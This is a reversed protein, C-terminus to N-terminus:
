GRADGAVAGGGPDPPRQHRQNWVIFRGGPASAREAGLAPGRGAAGGRGRELGRAPEARRPAADEAAGRPADGAGDQDRRRRRGGGAHTGPQVQDRGAEAVGGRGPGARLHRAPGAGRDPRGPHHRDRAGRGRRGRGAGARRQGAGPPDGAGALAREAGDAREVSRGPQDGLRARGGAGRPRQATRRLAAGPRVLGVGESFGTGDAAGAFPKCRGDPALGRQRSFEVFLRPEALVTVGGALALDCEGSRLAQGALHMAILSSSCATDVTVAPGELGLAYAVRGSVVSGGSITGEGTGPSAGAGLGYEHFMVGAFVGTASGGLSAPDVGADELAEWAAELLLRQQPDTVRAERPSIGFFEADFEGADDLFGGESAYSTGSHAPDSDFLRELDWGRDEPFSSIADAGGDLLRWLDEPSEVGGPYRCSMGVIAIPEESGAAARVIVPASDQGAALGRLFAAAAATSPYDFVLTSPLRLGTAAGLRNRLEVAGLSDFGLEKFSADPDIAAAAAHGLVAAVHEAVLAVVLGEREAEPAAALLQALSGAAARPRGAAVRVLGSYLPALQGSRARARLAALDLPAAVAFGLGRAREFLEVGEADAIARGGGRAMRAREAEGLEGGMGSTASWAGWAISTAPLGGARRRQALADLFANAAAYNGQGPGGFSAAISSFLTFESLEADGTLEHLNWAAQAKPAMVAALREPTLSEVVGDDLVGAAHVVAGLPHETSISDLLAALAARDAVDCAAIRVEAGLQELEAALEPAGPAESGRRSTLLLHRAGREALHRAFLAGLAGTAGTILVTREPDLAAPETPRAEIRALRPALAAGERLALQPEAETALAAALAGASADSGDTDILLFRGPHEAQASRVLGWVAAAAPDPSEGEGVAVAGRTLFALRSEDAAAIPEQLTALVEEALAQAAAAPALEPDPALEVLEVGEAGGEPLTQEAWEITFLSDRHADAGALAASPLPRSVLSAVTALPRGAADAIRLAATAEGAATLTVRLRSAGRGYLRVGSWAFPVRAEEGGDAALMGVQLAADLLAPHIGFREAESVRDEDLEVEAFLEEGRRWAARVGQFAPGYDLGRDAADEYLSDVPLPEAGAPPWEATPEPRELEAAGLVGAANAAWERDADDGDEARSHIAIARSGQEDAAGVSVQVQVAGREPLLLPAEITLEEIGAAGVQEAAKLAMEVFATGPLIATGHVAHDALWPHTQLSLRGTLLWGGDEEAAGPLSTAAGLLPHDSPSLGIAGADGVATSELWYHQRQFAYTPLPIRKAGPLLRAWDLPAGNVQAAALAGLLATAEARDKRLLPVAVAEKEAAAFSGQAMACLVGDPGLEIATSVGQAALHSAGDAFRVPQRVQAVWYAPDTAQEPTLLEGSLNSLVPIQPPNYSITQAVAAFEELM